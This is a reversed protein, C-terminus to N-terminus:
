AAPRLAADAGTVAEVYDILAGRAPADQAWLSLPQGFRLAAGFASLLLCLSALVAFLKKM